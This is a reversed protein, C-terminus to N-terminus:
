DQLNVNDLYVSVKDAWLKGHAQLGKANFHVGDRFEKRLADTDAGELAFGSKWHSIQAARFEIDAPDEESHYTAQAVLWPLDWGAVQRSTRIVKEMFAAYQKGTIQRDAPYGARA